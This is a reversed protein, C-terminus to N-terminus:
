LHADSRRIQARQGGGFSTTKIRRRGIRSVQEFVHPSITGTQAGADQTAYRSLDIHCGEGRANVSLFVVDVGRTAREDTNLVVLSRLSVREDVEVQRALNAGLVLDLGVRRTPRINMHSAVAPDPSMTAPTVHSFFFSDRPIEAHDSSAVIVLVFRM